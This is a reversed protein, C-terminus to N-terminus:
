FSRLHRKHCVTHWMHTISKTFFSIKWNRNEFKEFPLLVTSLSAHIMKDYVMDALFERQQDVDAKPSDLICNSNWNKHCWTSTVNFDHHDSQSLECQYVRSKTACYSIDWYIVICANSSIDVTSSFESFPSSVRIDIDSLTNSRTDRCISIATYTIITMSLRAM